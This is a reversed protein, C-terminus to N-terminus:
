LALSKEAYYSYNGPYLRVKGDVGIAITKTTIRDLFYRDHSIALVTGEFEELAEELVEISAIDLNNTPEDLLLFNAETLMLRALQLRSKEGGSMSGIMTHMDNYSFLLRSLFAVAQPETMKKLRRVFDLPTSEFPLTEQEQAYYGSVVSAGIKVFGSSAPLLGLMTKLLTTKGSGNAGVVGIREGYLVTLDFPEFLVYGDIAKSLGQVELVKKGSREAELDVKIRDRELVPRDVADQKAKEVRKAMYQARTAFDSNLKAWTKLRYMSAELRKIEKQQITFQEQQKLLQRMREEAYYSYNGAYPQIQGDELAFIKKVARDLLHRDHSIIMVTGPYNQIYQELWAKARMDLHNDPEDLLLLDPTQLLIRALNVLKKEGGSLSSLPLQHESEAFGLGSLVAAARHELTYGGLAEYREQVKSYEDLVASMSEPDAAIEPDAMKAELEKLREALSVLEESVESVAEFISKPLMAADIEQVLYGITLNRRRTVTGASATELGLALKFLTSKGSGNEGVLGIREGEEIELDVDKFVQNGGFDKSVHSFSLISHPM